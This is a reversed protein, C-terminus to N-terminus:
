LLTRKLRISNLLVSISSLAMAGAAIEPKLNGMAAIPIGVLNYIFAWFLNQKIKRMTAKSLKIAAPLANLDGGLLIIDGTEIAADTGTGIAFGVDATAIAPADNIGDGVMGVFKGKKKLETIVEAKKDPLVGAIVNKIGALEAVARATKVNDGTLMYVEIGMKSLKAIAKNSTNKIEDTLALAAAAIGDVAMLVITKGNDQLMSLQEEWVKFDISVEQMLSRTGILVKKDQIGAKVGKGPIAEFSDADNILEPVKEKGQQYIAKGVPHESAKEAAAAIALVDNENGLGSTKDLLIVDTLKLKGTTITGTKDLVVTNMRCTKELTEGNKILIGNQASMGMGVMIATPTALGLACPCSVVLVSVAYLIPLKIMYPSGNFVIFYWYLFTSIAALIVFPVFFECVRDAIRQIPARSNQALEVLKVIQSIVTQDGVKAAKFKFTGFQNISAGTVFDNEKKEVPLSEGTLMSEDVSSYGETIVGDVPIKDGPRVVVIDNVAVEEAPIETENGDRIINATSPKLTMLAEIAKSTNGKAAAELFKGLLVLTIIISSAEFYVEKMGYDDAAGFFSVYVSYFYTVSTGLAIMVDMNPKRLRLAHFSNRYFRFGLIFQVPTALALQIRWDHLFRTEVRLNTIFGTFGTMQDPPIYKCCEHAGSIIMMFVMPASLIAAIIFLNRLRNRHIRDGNLGNKNKTKQSGEVSFGLSEIVKNIEEAKIMSADFEILAKETAYSIKTCKIGELKELAAEISISCLTCTMGYIKLSITEDM